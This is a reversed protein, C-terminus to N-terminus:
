TDRMYHETTYPHNAFNTTDAEHPLVKFSSFVFTATAIQPDSSATDFSLNSLITIWANEFVFKRVVKENNNDMVLVTIDTVTEERYLFEMYPGVYSNMYNLCEAYVDYNEDVLFSVDVNAYVMKEGPVRLDLEPTPLMVEAVTINDIDISQAMQALIPLRPIVFKFKNSRNLNPHTDM